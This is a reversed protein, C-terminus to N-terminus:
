LRFKAAKENIQKNSVLFLFNPASESAIGSYQPVKRLNILEGMVVKKCLLRLLTDHSKSQHLKGAEWRTLSASGIGTLKALENVTLNYNGRLTSIEDPTLIDLYKCIVNHKLLEAEKATYAFDCDTCTYVPLQVDLVVINKNHKYEFQSDHLDVSVNTSGCCECFSPTHQSKLENM